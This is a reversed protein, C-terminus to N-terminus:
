VPALAFARTAGDDYGLNSGWGDSALANVRLDEAFAAMKCPPKGVCSPPLALTMMDSVTETISFSGTGGTITPLIQTASRFVSMTHTAFGHPHYAAYPMSVSAGAPYRVVGCCADATGSPTAPAGIGAWCHNNDVHLTLILSNGVVLSGGGPQAVTNANVGHITGALNVSDPVFYHIGKAGINVINGGADYLDLKLQYLGSNDSTGPVVSGDENFALGSSAQVSNLEGNETDTVANLITWQGIPPLAPPIEFLALNQGGVTMYHPGLSYKDIVLDGGVVHAYHRFVDATLPQFDGTTGKRWSLQYYKVGLADRLSNDFDLRPRLMGGWPSGSETLGLNGATAGAAGGGFIAKLSTNGIATFLVWNDGAVVPPCPACTTALPHTTILTVNTGCAYNWWTHCAIPTPAYITLDFWGFLRQHAKFYLDPVDTDYCGKFFLTQFHGCADTLASGVKRMTVFRPYFFCLLPRVLEPYKVLAQRFQIASGAQALFKLETNQAADQLARVTKEDMASQAVNAVAVSASRRLELPVPDPGPPPLPLTPSLFPDGPPDPIPPFPRTIVQRLRDIISDPLQWIIIPLPDVEYIDVTAHCVPLNLAVGGSIVRKLLTGRVVCASWLWCKWIDPFIRLQAVTDKLTSRLHQEQAGRRLLDELDPSDTHPGVLVRIASADKTAPVSLTAEGKESLPKSDLLKGGQSYAYATASPRKEAAAVDVLEAQVKIRAREPNGNETNAM